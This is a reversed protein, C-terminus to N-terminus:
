AQVRRRRAVGAAALGVLVLALSEPEPVDGSRVAVAWIQGIKFGRPQNGHFTDFAYAFIPGNPPGPDHESASWYGANVVDDFESQLGALSGGVANWLLLFENAAGAPQGANGTPLRWDSSGAFTLNEAWAMQLWWDMQGNVNWNKLWILHNVDDWVTGDGVQVLAAQATGASAALIGAALMKAAISGIWRFNDSRL